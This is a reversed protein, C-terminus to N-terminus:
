DDKTASILSSRGVRVTQTEVVTANNELLVEVMSSWM